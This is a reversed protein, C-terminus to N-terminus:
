IQMLSSTALRCSHDDVPKPPVPVPKPITPHTPKPLSAASKFASTTTQCLSKRTRPAISSSQSPSARRKSRKNPSLDHPSISSLSSRRSLLPESEAGNNRTEVLVIPKLVEATGPAARPNWTSRFTPALVAYAVCLNEPSELLWNKARALEVHTPFAPIFKKNIHSRDPHIIKFARRWARNIDQPTYDASPVLGLADFLDFQPDQFGPIQLVSTM